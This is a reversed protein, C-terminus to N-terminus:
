SGGCAGVCGAAKQQIDRRAAASADEIAKVQQKTYCDTRSVRSGIPQYTRCYVTELGRQQAKYGSPVKFEPDPPPTTVSLVTAEPEKAASAAAAPAAHAAATETAAAAAPAAAAPAPVAEAPATAAAPAAPSAESQDDAYAGIPLCAMAFVVIMGRM